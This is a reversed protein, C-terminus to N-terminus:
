YWSAPNTIASDYIISLNHKRNKINKIYVYILVLILILISIHIILNIKQNSLNM